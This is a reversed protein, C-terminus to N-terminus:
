KQLLKTEFNSIQCWIRVLILPQQFKKTFFTLNKIFNQWFHKHDFITILSMKHSIMGLGMTVKSGGRKAYFDLGPVGISTLLQFNFLSPKTGPISPLKPATKKQFRSAMEYFNAKM